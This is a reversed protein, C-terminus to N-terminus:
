QYNVVDELKEPNSKYLSVVTEVVSSDFLLGKNKLIENMAADIGLAPRYPRHSAMADIVDAVGLIKAELLIEDGTLKKPYGTGNLREHHQLIIQAVPLGFPIKEMIEYGIDPHTKIIGMEMETLRGPKNLIDSPVNMKGIDHLLAAFRLGEIQKDSLKMEVAILCALRMVQRQHGATYPDRKESVNMLANVTENLMLKLNEYSARLEAESKKQESVDLVNVLCVDANNVRIPTVCVVVEVLTGDKRKYQRVAHWDLKENILHNINEKLENAEVLAIDMVYLNKIDEESYRLINLLSDNAELIKESYPDFIYIGQSSHQVLSRYRDEAELFKATREEVKQELYTNIEKTKLEELKKETIDEIVVIAALIQGTSTTMPSTSISWYRPSGDLVQIVEEKYESGTRMSERAKCIDCPSNLSRLAKYCMPRTSFDVKSYLKEIHNNVFIIELNPDVVMVGATIHDLICKYNDEDFNFGSNVTIAQNLYKNNEQEFLSKSSNKRQFMLNKEEAQTWFRRSYITMSIREM